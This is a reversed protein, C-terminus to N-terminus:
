SHPRRRVRFYVGVPFPLGASMQPPRRRLNLLAQRIAVLHEAAEDLHPEIRDLVSEAASTLVEPGAGALASDIGALDLGMPRRLIARLRNVLRNQQSRLEVGADGQSLQGVRFGLDTLRVELQPTLIERVEVYRCELLGREELANWSSSTTSSRQLDYWLATRLGDDDYGCRIWCRPTQLQFRRVAALYDQQRPNLSRWAERFREAEGQPAEGNRLEDAIRNLHSRRAMYTWGSGHPPPRRFLQLRPWVRKRVWAPGRYLQLERAVTASGVLQDTAALAIEERREPELQLSAAATAVKAALEDAPESYPFDIRELVRISDRLDPDREAYDRRENESLGVDDGVLAFRYANYLQIRGPRIGAAVLRTAVWEVLEPRRAICSSREALDPSSPFLTATM